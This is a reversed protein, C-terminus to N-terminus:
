NFRRIKMMFGAKLTIQSSAVESAAQLKVNGATTSTRVWFRGWLPFNTNATPVGSSKAGVTASANQWGLTATQTTTAANDWEGAVTAGTPVTLALGFGTTTAAAQAAGFVEIEYDASAAADFALGTVDSLTVTSNTYDAVLVKTPYTQFEQASVSLMVQKTGAAFSVAAGGNSSRRPSTRTLTNTASYTGLGAEVDGTPTGNSDVARVVYFCTDGVSMWSSFASFGTVAGALTLAGTGTSTTTELVFDETVHAM